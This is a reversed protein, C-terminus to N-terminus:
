SYMYDNGFHLNGYYARQTQVRKKMEAEETSSTNTHTGGVINATSFCYIKSVSLNHKYGLNDLTCHAHAMNDYPAERCPGYLVLPERQSTV